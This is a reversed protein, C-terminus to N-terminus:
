AAGMCPKISLNLVRSEFSRIRVWIARDAAEGRVTARVVHRGRDPGWRVGMRERPASRAILQRIGSQIVEANKTQLAVSLRRRCYIYFGKSEIDCSAAAEALIALLRM